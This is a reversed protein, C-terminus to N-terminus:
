GANGAVHINYANKWRLWFEGGILPEALASKTQEIEVADM